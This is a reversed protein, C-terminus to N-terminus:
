GADCFYRYLRQGVLVQAADPEPHLGRPEGAQPARATVTRRSVAVVVAVERREAAPGNAEVTRARM